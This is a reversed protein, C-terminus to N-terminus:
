KSREGHVGRLDLAICVDHLLKQRFDFIRVKYGFVEEFESRLDWFNTNLLLVADSPILDYKDSSERQYSIQNLKQAKEARLAELLPLTSLNQVQRSELPRLEFYAELDTRLISACLDGMNAQEEWGSSDPIALTTYPLNERLNNCFDTDLLSQSMIATVRNPYRGSKLIRYYNIGVGVIRQHKYRRQLYDAVMTVTYGGLVILDVKNMYKALCDDALRCIESISKGDYPAHQWDIERIIEIVGLEHELFNAVVEGGWGGDFVVIKLM